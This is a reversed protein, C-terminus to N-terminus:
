RVRVTYTSNDRCTKVVKAVTAASGRGLNTRYFDVKLIVRDGDARVLRKPGWNDNQGASIRKNNNAATRNKNESRYRIKTVRIEENLQNKVQINIGTCGDGALAMNSASLGLALLTATVTMKLAKM